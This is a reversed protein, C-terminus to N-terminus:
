KLQKLRQEVILADAGAELAKKWYSEALFDEGLKYLIDGYHLMLESSKNQDLAIARRQVARAQEYRGLEYLIWAETDLYTSNGTEIENARRSMSLADELRVKELSLYYAYNNLLVASSDNLAMAKDYVKFASKTRGMKFLIDGEFAKINCRVSDSTAIKYSQKLLSLAQDDNRKLWEASANVLLFNVDDPFLLAARKSLYIVSDYNKKYNEIDILYTFADKDAANNEIRDRLMNTALKLDGTYMLFKTYAREIHENFPDSAYMSMAIQHVAPYHDKLLSQDFFAKTFYDAKLKSDLFKSDFVPRVTKLYNPVDNKARYYDSFALYSQYDTNDLAIAGEFLEIAQADKFLAAKLKALMVMLAPENPMTTTYTSLLTEAQIYQRNRLLTESYIGVVNSSYGWKELYYKSLAIVQEDDSMQASLVISLYYNRRRDRNSNRLDGLLSKAELLNNNLFLSRVYIQSYDSNITDGEYAKRAFKLMLKQDKSETLVAMQYAAAAHTSDLLLVQEFYQAAVGRKGMLLAKVGDVYLLSNAYSPNNARINDFRIQGKQGFCQPLLLMLVVIPIYKM